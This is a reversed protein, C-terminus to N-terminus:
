DSNISDVTVLPLIPGFIERSSFYCLFGSWILNWIFSEYEEMLSDDAKVDRVVTPEFGKEDDEQGRFPNKGEVLAVSDNLSYKAFFLKKTDQPPVTLPSILPWLVCRLM